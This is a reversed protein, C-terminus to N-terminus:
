GAYSHLGPLWLSVGVLTFMTVIFGIICVVASKRGRLGRTVRMHLYAAYLLWTILAWTEKPDWQWYSGWAFQAWIAGTILLATQMLFGFSIARYIMKDLLESAPLRTTWASTNNKDVKEKILFMIALSFALAFSSYALIATAIHPVRWASM